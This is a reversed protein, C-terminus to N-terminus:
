QYTIWLKNMKLLFLLVVMSITGITAFITIFNGARVSNKFAKEIGKYIMLGILGGLTNNIIDTIDFAGIALIFQSVECILSTLFFLFLNKGIDWRKFLIGAYIGLPVFIVVNLIMESLDFKGNLTFLESFPILNISRLNGYSFRVNLKLVVIWFLVILYIVFLVSTLKNTKNEIMKDKLIKAFEYQDSQKRIIVHVEASTRAPQLYGNM